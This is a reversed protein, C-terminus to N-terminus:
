ERMGLEQFFEVCEGHGLLLLKNYITGMAHIFKETDWKWVKCMVVVYQSGQKRGTKGFFVRLKEQIFISDAFFDETDIYAYYNFLLSKKEIKVYNRMREGVKKGDSDYHKITGFLGQRSYGNKAM